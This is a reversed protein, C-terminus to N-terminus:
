KAAQAQARASASLHSLLAQYGAAMNATEPRAMKAHSGLYYDAEDIIERRFHQSSDFRNALSELMEADMVAVSLAHGMLRRYDRNRLKKESRAQEVKDMFVSAVLNPGARKVSPVEGEIEARRAVAQQLWDNLAEGNERLYPGSDHGEPGLPMKAVLEDITKRMQKPFSRAQLLGKAREGRVEARQAAAERAQDAARAAKEQASEEQLAARAHKDLFADLEPDRRMRELMANKYGIYEKRREPPQLNPAIRHHPFEAVAEYHAMSVVELEGQTNLDFPIHHLGFSPNLPGYSFGIAEVKASSSKAALYRQLILKFVHLSEGGSHAGSFPRSRDLLVITKDGKVVEPPILADFHRFYSADDHVGGDHMGSAPFNMALKEPRSPDAALNQIMSIISAPSRGLGFYYSTNAPFKKMVEKTVYKLQEYQEQSLHGQGGGHLLAGASIPPAKPDYVKKLIGGRARATSLSAVTDAHARSADAQGIFLALLAASSTRLLSM